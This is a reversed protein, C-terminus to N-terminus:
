NYNDSIVKEIIRAMDPRNVVEFGVKQCMKLSNVNDHNINSWIPGGLRARAERIATRLMREGIGIGRFLVHVWTGGSFNEEIGLKEWMKYIWTGGIIRNGVKATVLMYRGERINMCTKELRGKSTPMRGVAKVYDVYDAEDAVKIRVLRDVYRRLRRAVSTELVSKLMRKLVKNSFGMFLM